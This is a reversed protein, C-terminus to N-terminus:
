FIIDAEEVDDFTPEEFSLDGPDDEPVVHDEAHDFGLDEPMPYENIMQDLRDSHRLLAEKLREKNGVDLSYEFEPFNTYSRKPVYDVLKDKWYCNIFERVEQQQAAEKTPRKGSTPLYGGAVGKVFQQDLHRGMPGALQGTRQVQRDTYRGSSDKLMGSFFIQATLM